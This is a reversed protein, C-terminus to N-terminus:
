WNEKLLWALEEKPTKPVHLKIENIEDKELLKKSLWILPKLSLRVIAKLTEKDRIYNAISPSYKYYLEVFKRGYPNTLLYKDRFKRLIEVEKAMPTGFAATAIFCNGGDDSNNSNDTSGGNDNECPSDSASVKGGLGFISFHNVRCIVYNEEPYIESGVVEEWQGTSPNYWYVNFETEKINTGDVIGDNDVDNYPIRIIVDQDFKHIGDMLEYERYEDVSVIEYGDKEGSLAKPLATEDIIRIVLRDENPIAEPPLSCGTGDYLLINKNLVPYVIVEKRHLGEIDKEEKIDPNPEANDVTVTIPLSPYENGMVDTVVARLEYFGNPLITTNWYTSCRDFSIVSISQWIDNLRRYEFRINALKEKPVTTTAVISVESGSVIQDEKPELIWTIHEEQKVSIPITVRNTLGNVDKVELCALYNGALFYTHSIGQNRYREFEEEGINAVWDFKGDGDFDFAYRIIEGSSNDNFTVTLPANGSTKSVNVQAVPYNLGKDAVQITKRIINSVGDKNTVKLTLEYTGPSSYIYSVKSASNKVADIIGDGDFDWEYKIIDADVLAEAEVELLGNDTYKEFVNVDVQPLNAPETVDIFVKEISSLGNKDTVKLTATYHGPLTYTNIVSTLRPSVIEARGDGDFDWEYKVVEGNIVNANFEVKLPAEGILPNAELAVKPTLSNDEVKILVTYTETLGQNDTVRLTANYEGPATYTYTVNGSERSVWDYSGNGDFDWEYKAIYENDTVDVRFTVEFPVTGSVSETYGNATINIQPPVNIPVDIVTITVEQSDTLEGDSVTVTVKHVGADDYDTTYTPGNMWGSYSFTLKDGDPDFANPSIKVTEGENVVIDPIEELVPASNSIVIQDSEVPQGDVKGDNPTVIVSIIDGKVFNSSSLTKGTAGSIINGNKKWQYKFTITDGDSDKAQVIATLNTDTYAPVPAIEVFVIEPPHNSAGCNTGPMAETYAPESYNGASDYAFAAYYYQNCNQLGSHLFTVEKGPTVDTINCVLTGDNYSSPYGDNKYLIKVGALDSDAPNVWSLTVQGDGPTATFNSVKNPAQNVVQENVITSFSCT